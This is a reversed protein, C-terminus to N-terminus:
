WGDTHEERSEQIIYDLPLYIGKEDIVRQWASSKSTKVQEWSELKSYAEISKNIIKEVNSPFQIVTKKDAELDSAGYIRYKHWVSPIIPGYQWAEFKDEFLWKGTEKYYRVYARYLLKSLCLLTLSNLPKNPYREIIYEALDEATIPVDRYVYEKDKTNPEKVQYTYKYKEEDRTKTYNDKVVNTEKPLTKILNSVQKFVNKMGTLIEDENQGNYYAEGGSVLCYNLNLKKKKRLYEGYPFVVNMAIKESHTAIMANVKQGVLYKIAHKTFLISDYESLWTEPLYIIVFKSGRKVEKKIRNLLKERMEHGRRIGKDHYYHASKIMNLFFCKYAEKGVKLTNCAEHLINLMEYIATNDNGTVLTLGDIRIFTQRIHKNGSMCFTIESSMPLEEKYIMTDLYYLM